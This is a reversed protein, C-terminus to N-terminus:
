TSHTGTQGSTSSPIPVGRGGMRSSRRASSTRRTIGLVPSSECPAM